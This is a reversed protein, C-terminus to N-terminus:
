FIVKEAFNGGEYATDFKDAFTKSNPNSSFGFTEGPAAQIIISYRVGQPKPILGLAQIAQIRALDVSPAVYLTLTMNKNDSVYADGSFATQIVEQVTIRSDSVLFASGTNKAIKVKIYFRYDADSLVPVFPSTRRIGVVRGIIDLRDGTAEDVDFAAPFAGLFDFVKKWSDILVAVEAKANPKDWYQKILLDRYESEFSM